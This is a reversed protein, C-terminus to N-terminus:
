KLIYEMYGQIPEDPLEFKENWTPAIIKLQNNKYQQNIKGLTIFLCTKCLFM